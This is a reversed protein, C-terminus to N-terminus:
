TCIIEYLVYLEIVLFVPISVFIIYVDSVETFANSHRKAPVSDSSFESQPQRRCYARNWNLEASQLLVTVM